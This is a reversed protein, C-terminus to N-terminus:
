VQFFTVFLFAAFLIIISILCVINFLIFKSITKGRRQGYINKMGKYAYWIGYIVLATQILQLWGWSLANSLQALGIFLMMLIFSFIYLHILFIAHDAFFYKKNRIYLLKLFLAYLPLSVFLIYPFSHMFKNLILFNLKAQEGKYKENLSITKRYVTRLFFGDKEKTSLTKQVSDYQVVTKYKDLNEDFSLNLGGRESPNNKIGASDKEILNYFKLAIMSDEKTTLKELMKEKGDKLKEIIDNNNGEIKFGSESVSYFSFFVLFFVASTFVYMKVPHLYSKRRGQMYEKTLFGPKFLLDKLTTFFNSDFHTIDYFFHAVMHWFTEHTVINEQGCNHCYHGQLIAGCNLCDNEKRQPAHSM